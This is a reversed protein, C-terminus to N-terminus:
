SPRRSIRLRTAIAAAMAHAARPDPHGDDPVRWSPDLQVQVYALGTEDLIRRRFMRERPVEEGFQPVLILATAGRRQAREASARLVERTVAIGREIAEDSRYRILRRAIATLRWRREAPQWVLGPGLHPRDDDLNRDFLAPSFLTVVAVPRRFRPLESQLRLYAQDTGFGSVAVDASQLGTITESQAPITEDWSLKEGVMMSEGAFVITPRDFDVSGGAHRARYGNRDFAYEVRRGNITQHGVRSPVFLWGLRADLHRRPEKRAPVEEKARLHSQRLGLEAAGFSGAIALAILLTRTADRTLFRALPRRIVLLLLAGSTAAVIRINTEVRVMTARPVFFDPLFHRDLWQQNAAIAAALLAAGLSAVAIEVLKARTDGRGAFRPAPGRLPPSPNHKPGVRAAPLLVRTKTRRLMHM